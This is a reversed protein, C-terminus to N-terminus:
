RVWISTQGTNNVSLVGYWGRFTYTRSGSVFGGAGIDPSAVFGQGTFGARSSSHVSPFFPGGDGNWGRVNSNSALGYGTPFTDSWTAGIAQTFTWRSFTGVEGKLGTVTVASVGMTAGGYTFSHNAFTLASPNPIDIRYINSYNDLGGTSPNNGAAFMMQTSARALLLATQGGFANSVIGHSSARNTPNYSYPAGTPQDYNLNPMAFNSPSDGTTAVFGYSLLMWGGSDYTFDCYVQAAFAMASNRIWYMGNTNIGVINRLYLASPAAKAETSGDLGGLAVWNTGSWFEPGGITTNFRIHGLVPSIPRQATTGSPFQLAGTGNFNVADLAVPGVAGASILGPGIVNTVNPIANLVGSVFFSEVTILDGAAAANTLVVTVGDTATFNSASLRVGSRFVNIFGPTYSAPTFTTQGATATFETVSRYATTTVNSAPLALYRVSINGTGAPPAQSFTLTRGVVGYTTPDQLVGWIAVLVAATNAPAVAMTYVTTSGNGSFTDSLFSTYQPQNGIYSM